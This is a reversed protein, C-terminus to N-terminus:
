SRSSFFFGEEFDDDEVLKMPADKKSAQSSNTSAPHNDQITLKNLGAQHHVNVVDGDRFVGIKTIM